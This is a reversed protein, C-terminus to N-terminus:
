LIKRLGSCRGASAEFRSGQGKPVGESAFPFEDSLNGKMCSPTARQAPTTTRM